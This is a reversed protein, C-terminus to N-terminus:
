KRNRSHNVQTVDSTLDSSGTVANIHPSDEDENTGGDDPPTYRHSALNDQQQMADQFNMKDM